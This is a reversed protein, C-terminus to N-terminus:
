PQFDTVVDHDTSAAFEVGEAANEMVKTAVPVQADISGLCHQHFEAGVLGTTDLVHAITAEITTTAGPEVVVDAAEFRTFEFGRTVYATYAGPAVDVDFVGNNTVAYRTAGGAEFD